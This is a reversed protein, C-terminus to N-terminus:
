PWVRRPAKVAGVTSSDYYTKDSSCLNGNLTYIEENFWETDKLITLNNSASLGVGFSGDLYGASVIINGNMSSFSNTSSNYLSTVYVQETYKSIRNIFAQSPFTNDSAVTYETSGACCCVCCIDPTIKSLLCDNSSTPSGHHGAKFLDCHPLTKAASSNDYYQALYEEGEKELDGTLMFHHDNYNIMTCVSYNNEDNSPNFYYYNYLIDMTIGDALTLTTQNNDWLEKATNHIAGNSIAYERSLLYKGYVSNSVNYNSSSAEKNDTALVGKAIDTKKVEGQYAFDIINDVDYYYLVGNRSVTDGKHNVMSKSEGAFGSIHDKHAHTAIVYELSGDTCYNNVYDIIVPASSALSGADILIDTDGAKIYISDGACDNGLELFHIQLDDYLVSNPAMKKDTKITDLLKDDTVLLIGLVASKLRIVIEYEKNYDLLITYSIFVDFEESDEKLIIEDDAILLVDYSDIDGSVKTDFSLENQEININEINVEAADIKKTTNIYNVGIFAAAAIVIIIIIISLIVFLKNNKKNNKKKKGM